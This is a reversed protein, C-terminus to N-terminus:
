ELLRIELNSLYNEINPENIVNFKRTLKYVEIYFDDTLASEVDSRESFLFVNQLKERLLLQYENLLKEAEIKFLEVDKM